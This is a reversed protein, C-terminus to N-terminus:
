TGREDFVRFCGWACYFTLRNCRSVSAFILVGFFAQETPCFLRIVADDWFESIQFNVASTAGVNRTGRGPM